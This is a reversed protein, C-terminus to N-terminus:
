PKPIAILKRKRTKGKEYVSSRMCVKIGNTSTVFSVISIFVSLLVPAICSIGIQRYLLYTAVAIEIPTAFLDDIRQVSVAIRQVDTNISHM